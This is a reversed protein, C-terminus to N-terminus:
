LLAYPSLEIDLPACTYSPWVGSQRCEAIAALARQYRRKGARFEDSDRAMRYMGMLYPPSKEIAIWIFEDYSKDDIVSAADLYFAARTHYDRKGITQMFALPAASGCSKLDVISSGFRIIDTRIRVDHWEDVDDPLQAFGSMEFENDSHAMIEAIEAHHPAALSARIGEIKKRDGDGLFLVTDRFCSHLQPTRTNMADDVSVRMHGLALQDKLWAEWIALNDKGQRRVTPAKIISADFVDPELTAAHMLTGFHMAHTPEMPAKLRAPVDLMAGIQSSSVGSYGHYVANPLDRVWGIGTIEMDGALFLDMHKAYFDGGADFVKGPAM